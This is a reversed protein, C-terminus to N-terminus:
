IKQKNLYKETLKNISIISLIVLAQVVLMIEKPIETNVALGGFDLFGFLLSSLIIGLPNNKALLAVAIATFGINNSFGLEYYGKYGMIFNMGAFSTLGAGLMFSFITLANTRIGLYKSATENYGLARIKYGLKTKYIVFYFFVALALAFIISLNASSGQFSNFYDSLQPLMLSDSIKETRVTSKVALFEILFYNVLAIIVFNLMITTIVESVGKKIKIIAPVYGVLASIIFGALLSAPLAIVLPLAGLKLAVLSMVFAGANLQGEAGINFLSAHFCFAIGTGCIILPTAKFLTQGIGYGSGLVESFMMVFIDIPNKGILLILISTLLFTVFISVLVSVINVIIRKNM